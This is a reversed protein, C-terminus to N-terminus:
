RPSHLPRSPSVCTLASKANVASAVPVANVATVTARASKAPNATTTAHRKPSNMPKCRHNVRQLPQQLHTTPTPLARNRRSSPNTLVMPTAAKAMRARVADMAAAVDTADKAPNVAKVPKVRVVPPTTQM